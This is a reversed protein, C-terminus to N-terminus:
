RRRLANVCSARDVEAGDSRRADVHTVIHEGGGNRAYLYADLVCAEGSFQLKRGVAEQVDLRPEGFMSQLTQANRGMVAELGKGSIPGPDNIPIQSPDVSGAPKAGSSVCGALLVALTLTLGVNKM